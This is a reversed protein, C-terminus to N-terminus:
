KKKTIRFLGYISRELREQMRHGGEDRGEKPYPSLTRFSKSCNIHRLAPVIKMRCGTWIYAKNLWM